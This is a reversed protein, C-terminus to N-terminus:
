GRSLTQGPPRSGARGQPSFRLIPGKFHVFTRDPNHNGCVHFVEGRSAPSDLSTSYSRGSRGPDRRDPVSGLYEGRGITSRSRDRARVVHDPAFFFLWGDVWIEQVTSESVAM